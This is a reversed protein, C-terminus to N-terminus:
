LPWSYIFQKVQGEREETRTALGLDFLVKLRTSAAAIDLNLLEALERATLCRHQMLLKFSSQVHGESKGILKTGFHRSHVPFVCNRLGTERVTRSSLAMDLNELSADELAELIICGYRNIRRSRNLALTSFVEDAFSADMIDIGEFDLVLADSDARDQVLAELLPLFRRGTRRTLLTRQDLGAQHALEVMRVTKVQMEDM